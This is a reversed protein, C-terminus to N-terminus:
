FSCMARAQFDGGSCTVMFSRSLVISPVLGHVFSLMFTGSQSLLGPQVARDLLHYLFAEQFGDSFSRQHMATGASVVSLVCPM